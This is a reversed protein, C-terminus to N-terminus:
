HDHKHKIHKRLLSSNRYIKGCAMCPLNEVTHVAKIHLYLNNKSKFVKSCEDCEIEEDVSNHFRRVHNSLYYPGKFTKCCLDCLLEKGGHVTRKHDGLYKRNSYVKGCEDCASKETTHVNQIHNKLNSKKFQKSCIQCASMEEETHVQKIHSALYKQKQFIKKCETCKYESKTQISSKGSKVGNVKEKIEIEMNKMSHIPSGSEKHEETHSDLYTQEQFIKNREICRYESNSHIVPDEYVVGNLEEEIEIKIDNTPDPARPSEELSNGNVNSASNLVEPKIKFGTDEELDMFSWDDTSLENDLAEVDKSQSLNNSLKDKTPYELVADDNTNADVVNTGELTNRQNARMNESKNAAKFKCFRRKHRSLYSYNKQEEGCLNCQLNEIREHVDRNHNYLNAKSKCVKNCIECIAKEVAHFRNIHNRLYDPNKFEKGCKECHSICVRHVASLHSQLNERKKFSKECENCAHVATAM